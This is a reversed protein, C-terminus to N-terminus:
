TELVGGDVCRIAVMVVIVVLLWCCRWLCHSGDGGEVRGQARLGGVCGEVRGLGCGQLHFLLDEGEGAVVEGDGGGVAGRDAFAFAFDERQVARFGEGVQM